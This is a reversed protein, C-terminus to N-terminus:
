KLVEGQAIGGSKPKETGCTCRQQSCHQQILFECPALEDCSTRREMGGDRFWVLEQDREGTTERNPTM